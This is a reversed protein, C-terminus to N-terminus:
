KRTPELATNPQRPEAKFSQAVVFNPGLILVRPSGRLVKGKLISTTVGHAVLIPLVGDVITRPAALLLGNGAQVLATTDFESNLYRSLSRWDNTIELVAQSLKLILSEVNSIASTIYLDRWEELYDMLLPHDTHVALGQFNEALFLFEQKGQFHIRYPVSDSLVVDWFTSQRHTIRGQGGRSLTEILCDIM